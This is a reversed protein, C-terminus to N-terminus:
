HRFENQYKKLIFSAIRYVSMLTDFASISKNWLRDASKDNYVYGDFGGGYQWM